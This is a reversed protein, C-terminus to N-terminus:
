SAAEVSSATGPVPGAASARSGAAGWAAEPAGPVLGAPMAGHQRVVVSRDRGARDTAEIRVVRDALRGHGAGLGGWGSERVRLVADAQPWPGLALLVCDHRRLRAALRAAEAEAVTGPPRVAVVSVADALAAVVGLWHRGADPVLVLRDLDLGLGAAAEVGLEPVGVVACWSGMASARELMAMLLTNSGALRYAAGCRLGGPLLPALAESVPIRRGDLRRSQMGELRSRLEDVRHGPPTAALAMGTHEFMHEVM